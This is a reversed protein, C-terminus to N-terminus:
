ISNCHYTIKTSKCKFHYLEREPILLNINVKTMNAVDFYYAYFSSVELNFFTKYMRVSENKTEVDPEKITLPKELDNEISDITILTQQFIIDSRETLIQQNVCLYRLQWWQISWNKDFTNKASSGFLCLNALYLLELEKCAPEVSEGNVDEVLIKNMFKLTLDFFNGFADRIIDKNAKGTWNIGVFLQLASIGVCLIELHREMPGESLVADIYTRLDNSDRGSCELFNTIVTEYKENSLLERLESLRKEHETFHQDSLCKEKAASSKQDFNKPHNSSTLMREITLELEAM